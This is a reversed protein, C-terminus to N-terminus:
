ATLARSFVDSELLLIEVLLLLQVHLILHLSAHSVVRIEMGFRRYLLLLLLVVFYFVKWVYDWRLM